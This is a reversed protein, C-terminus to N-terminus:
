PGPDQVAAATRRVPMWGPEFRARVILTVVAGYSRVGKEVRNAKLYRDYVRWGATRLWPLQGRRLRQVSAEIDRRPGAGLAKALRARGDDDVEESVQWYLFLWGSYRAPVDARMCTLWGVFSAEAEDAYGALHSWEHAAVFPREFPLLDPNALVELGFPNIMGDVSTWRFYPGLLTRKLRGPTAPPAESLARQAAKFARRFTEDERPAGSWGVRHAEDHLTNLQTAAEVGLDAVAQSAPAGPDVILRETMPVRRYNLGWLVLFVLYVSAAAAALDGLARLVPWMGRTRRAEQVARILVTLAAACGAVVLVDLVAFPLLNTLPTVHRQLAPYFGTSFWREVASPATPTFAAVLALGVTGLEIVIRRPGKM